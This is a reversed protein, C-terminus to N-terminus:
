QITLTISGHLRADNGSGSLFHGNDLLVAVTQTAGTNNTWQSDPGTPPDMSSGDGEILTARLTGGGSGDLTAVVVGTGSPAPNAMATFSVHEREITEGDALQTVYLTGADGVNVLGGDDVSSYETFMDIGEVTQTSDAEDVIGDGDSDIDNDKYLSATDAEDVVGDADSDIDTLASRTEDEFNYLANWLYDLHKENVRDEFEYQFGATPQSGSSGWQPFRETISWAM